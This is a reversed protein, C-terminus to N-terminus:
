SRGARERRTGNTDARRFIRRLRATASIRQTGGAAAAPMAASSASLPVPLAAAGEFGAQAVVSSALILPPPKESVHLICGACVHMRSLKRFPLGTSSATHAACQASARQRTCRRAASRMTAHDPTRTDHPSQCMPPEVVEFQAWSRGDHMHDGFSRRRRGHIHQRRCVVVIGRRHGVALATALTRYVVESVLEHLIIYRRPNDLEDPLRTGEDYIRMGTCACAGTRPSAAAVPAEAPQRHGQPVSLLSPPDLGSRAQTAQM